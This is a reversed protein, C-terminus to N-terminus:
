IPYLTGITAEYIPYLTGITAEYDTADDAGDGIAGASADKAEEETGVDTANIADGNDLAPPPKPPLTM